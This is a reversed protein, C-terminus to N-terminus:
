KPHRARLEGIDVMDAALTRTKRVFIYQDCGAGPQDARLAAIQRDLMDVADTETDVYHAIGFQTEHLFLRGRGDLTDLTWRGDTYPPHDLEWALAAMDMEHWACSIPVLMFADRGGLLEITLDLDIYASCPSQRAVDEDVDVFTRVWWIPGRLDSPEKTKGDDVYVDGLGVVRAKADLDTLFELLEDRTHRGKVRPIECDLLGRFHPICLFRQGNIARLAEVADWRDRDPDALKLAFCQLRRGIEPDAVAAAVPVLAM